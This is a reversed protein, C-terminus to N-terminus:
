LQPDVKRPVAPGTPPHSSHCPFPRTVPAITGGFFFPSSDPRCTNVSPGSGAAAVQGAEIASKIQQVAAHDDTATLYSGM